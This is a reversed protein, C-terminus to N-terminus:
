KTSIRLSCGDSQGVAPCDIDRFLRQLLSKCGTNGSNIGSPQHAASAGSSVVSWRVSNGQMCSRLRDHFYRVSDGVTAASEVLNSWEMLDPVGAVM